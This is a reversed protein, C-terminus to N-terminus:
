EQFQFSKRRLFCLTAGIFFQCSNKFVRLVFSFSYEILMDDSSIRSFILTLLLIPLLISAAVNYISVFRSLSISYVRSYLMLFM